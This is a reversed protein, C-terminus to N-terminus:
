TPFGLDFQAGVKRNISIHKREREFRELVGEEADWGRSKQGGIAVAGSICIRCYCGRSFHNLSSRLDPGPADLLELLSSLRERQVGAPAIPQLVTMDLVDVGHASAVQMERPMFLRSDKKVADPAVQILPHSCKRWVTITLACSAPAAVTVGALYLVIKWFPDPPAEPEAPTLIPTTCDM